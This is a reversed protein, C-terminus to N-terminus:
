TAVPTAVNSSNESLIIANTEGPLIESDTVYFNASLVKGIEGDVTLIYFQRHTFDQFLFIDFV